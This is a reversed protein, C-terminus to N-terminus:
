SFLQFNLACWRHNPPFVLAQASEPSNEDSFKEIANEIVEQVALGNAQRQWGVFARGHYELIIKYRTM